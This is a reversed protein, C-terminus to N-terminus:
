KLAVVMYKSESWFSSAIISISDTKGTPIVMYSDSPHTTIFSKFKGNLAVGKLTTLDEKAFMSNDFGPNLKATRGIGIFGGKKDIISNEKLQKMTGCVYYVTNKETILDAVQARVTNIAAISDYFSLTVTQLDSNAKSLKTQLMAIETDKIAIQQSLNTVLYQLNANKNTMNRLKSQLSNMKKDNALIWTDLEKVEAVVSEKDAGEEDSNIVIMKERAKIRNLNEQIQRMDGIYASISSDKQNAQVLLVTDKNALDSMKKAQDSNSCGALAIM